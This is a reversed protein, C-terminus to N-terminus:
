EVLAEMTAKDDKTYVRELMPVSTDLLKAIYVPQKGAIMARTIFSRRWDYPVCPKMGPHALMAKMLATRFAGHYSLQPKDQHIRNQFVFRSNPNEKMLRCIHKAATKNVPVLRARATKTIECPVDVWMKGASDFKIMSREWKLVERPRFGHSYLVYFFVRFIRYTTNRLIWWTELPAVVRGVNRKKDPNDLRPVNAIIGREKAKHFMETLTKRVNFYRTIRWQKPNEKTERIWANWDVNGFKDMPLPGWAPIINRRIQYEKARKTSERHESSGLEEAIFTQAFEGVTPMRKEGAMVAISENLKAIQRQLELIKEDTM